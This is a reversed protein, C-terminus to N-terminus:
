NGLEISSYIKIADKWENSDLQEQYSKTTFSGEGMCFGGFSALHKSSSVIVNTNKAKDLLNIRACDFEQFNNYNKSSWQMKHTWVRLGNSLEQINTDVQQTTNSAGNEFAILMTFIGYEAETSYLDIATGTSPNGTTDQLAWGPPYKFSVKSGEFTYSKWNSYEDDGETEEPNDSSIQTHSVPEDSNDSQNKNFIYWGAGGIVGAVTILILIAIVGFGHSNKYLKM